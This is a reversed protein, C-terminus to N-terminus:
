CNKKNLVKPDPKKPRQTKFDRVVIGSNEAVSYMIMSVLTPYILAVNSSAKSKM